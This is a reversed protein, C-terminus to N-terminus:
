LSHKLSQTSTKLSMLHVWQTLICNMVWGMSIENRMENSVTLSNLFFFVKLPGMTHFDLHKYCLALIKRIEIIM